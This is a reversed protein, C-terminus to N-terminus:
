SLALAGFVVSALGVLLEAGRGPRVPAAMSRVLDSVGTGVLAVGIVIALARVSFSPRVLMVLGLVIWGLGLLMRPEPIAEDRSVFLLLGALLANVGALAVLDEVSTFPRLAMLTGGAACALAVPATAWRPLPAAGRGILRDLAGPIRV